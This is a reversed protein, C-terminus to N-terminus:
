IDDEVEFAKLDIFGDDYLRKLSTTFNTINEFEIGDEAKIINVDFIAIRGRYGGYCKDCGKAIFHGDREEKCEDCLRPVLRQSIISKLGDKIMNM